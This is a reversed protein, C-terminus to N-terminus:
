DHLQASMLTADLLSTASARTLRAHTAFMRKTLSV